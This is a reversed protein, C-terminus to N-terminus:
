TPKLTFYKIAFRVAAIPIPSCLFHRQSLTISFVTVIVELQLALHLSDYPMVARITMRAFDDRSETASRKAVEQEGARFVVFVYQVYELM